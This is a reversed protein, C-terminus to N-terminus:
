QIVCTKERKPTCDSQLTDGTCEVSPPSEEEGKVVVLRFQYTHQQELQAVVVKTVEGGVEM